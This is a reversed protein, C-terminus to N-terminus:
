TVKVAPGPLVKEHDRANEDEVHATDHASNGWSLPMMLAHIPLSGNNWLFVAAFM